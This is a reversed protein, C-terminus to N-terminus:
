DLFSDAEVCAYCMKHGRSWCSRCVYRNNGPVTMDKCRRQVNCHVTCQAKWQTSPDCGKCRSMEKHKECCTIIEEGDDGFVCGECVFACEECIRKTCMRCQVIIPGDGHRSREFLTTSHCANGYDDKMGAYERILGSAIWSNSVFTLKLLDFLLRLVAVDNRGDHDSQHCFATCLDCAHYSEIQSRPFGEINPMTQCHTACTVMHTKPCMDIVRGECPLEHKGHIHDCGIFSAILYALNGEGLHIYMVNIAEGIYPIEVHSCRIITGLSESDEKAEQLKRKNAYIKLVDGKPKTMELL